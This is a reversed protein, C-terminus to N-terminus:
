IIVTCICIDKKEKNNKQCKLIIMEFKKKNDARKKSRFIREGGEYALSDVYGVTYSKIMVVCESKGDYTLVRSFTTWLVNM